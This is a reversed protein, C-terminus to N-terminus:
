YCYYIAFHPFFVLISIFYCCRPKNRFMTKVSSIPLLLLLLIVTLEILCSWLLTFHLSTVVIHLTNPWCTHLAVVTYTDADTDSYILLGRHYRIAEQIRNDRLTLM